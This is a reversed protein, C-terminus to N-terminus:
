VRVSGPARGRGIPSNEKDIEDIKKVPPYGGITAVFKERETGSKVDGKPSTDKENKAM